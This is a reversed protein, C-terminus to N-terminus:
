RMVYRIHLNILLNQQSNSPATFIFPHHKLLMRLNQHKIACVLCIAFPSWQSNSCTHVLVHFNECRETDEHWRLLLPDKIPNEPGANWCQQTRLIQLSGHENQCVTVLLHITSKVIHLLGKVWVCSVSKAHIVQHVLSQFTQFASKTPLVFLPDIVHNVSEFCRHESPKVQTSNLSQLFKGHRTLRQILPQTAKLIIFVLITVNTM